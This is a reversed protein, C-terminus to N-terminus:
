IIKDLLASYDMLIIICLNIGNIIISLNYRNAWMLQNINFVINHYALVFSVKTSNKKSPCPMKYCLQTEENNKLAEIEAPCAADEAAECMCVRRRSVSGAGCRKSCPSWPSWPCLDDTCLVVLILTFTLQSEKTWVTNKGIDSIWINITMWEYIHLYLVYICKYHLGYQNKRHSM